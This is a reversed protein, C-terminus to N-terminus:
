KMCRMFNLEIARERLIHMADTIGGLRGIERETEERLQNLKVQTILSHQAEEAIAEKQKSLEDLRSMSKLRIEEMLDTVYDLEPYLVQSLRRIEPIDRTMRIEPSVELRACQAEARTRDKIPTTGNVVYGKLNVNKSVM